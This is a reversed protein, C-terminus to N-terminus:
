LAPISWSGMSGRDAPRHICRNRWDRLLHWDGLWGLGNPLGHIMIDGEPPVGHTRGDGEQEKPGVPRRGLAIPFTEGHFLTLRRAKKEWLMSTARSDAPSLQPVKRVPAVFDWAAVFVLLLAFVRALTGGIRRM